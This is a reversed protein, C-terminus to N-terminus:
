SNTPYHLANYIEEVNETFIYCQYWNGDPAVVEIPSLSLGKDMRNLIANLKETTKLIVEKGNTAPNNLELKLQKVQEIWTKVLDREKM